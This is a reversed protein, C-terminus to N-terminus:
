VRVTAFRGAELILQPQSLFVEWEGSGNEASERSGAEFEGYKAPCLNQRESVSPELTSRTRRSTGHGKQHRTM